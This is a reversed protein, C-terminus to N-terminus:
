FIPEVSDVNDSTVLVSAVRHQKPVTEGHLIKLAFEAGERGCTPYTFSATQTGARIAARAEGIYDIGVTPYDAPNRGAAKLAIRAGAAMSDSQAYIADFVIGSKLVEDLAQIALNRLSDARRIAAIRMGPYDALAEAFGRTRLMGPTTTPIHQLMLVNGKGHLRQALFHGAQRAIALNDPAIFSTYDEGLTQRSLLIVPMGQQYVQSIVPTMAKADRPSTILVHVGLAALDEIDMVQQATSGGADKVIFEVEPHAALARRMEQVQAARWDNALHDQAFGVRFRPEEQAQACLGASLFWLLWLLKCTKM